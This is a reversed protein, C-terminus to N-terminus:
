VVSGQNLCYSQELSRLVSQEYPRRSHHTIFIVQNSLANLLTPHLQLRSSNVVDIRIKQCVQMNVQFNELELVSWGGPCVLWLVSPCFQAVALLYFCHSFVHLWHNFYAPVCRFATGPRPFKLRSREPQVVTWASPLDLPSVTSM